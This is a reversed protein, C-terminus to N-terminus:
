GQVPLKQRLEIHSAGTARAKSIAAEALAREAAPSDALIGGYNLFPLSVFFHGFLLSRMEVLPLVGTVAGSDRAILYHPKHGFTSALVDRWELIHCSSANPSRHVYDQWATKDGDLEEVTM